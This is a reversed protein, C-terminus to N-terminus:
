TQPAPQAHPHPQHQLLGHQQRHTAGPQCPLASGEACADSGRPLVDASRVTRLVLCVGTVPSSFASDPHSAHLHSARKLSTPM